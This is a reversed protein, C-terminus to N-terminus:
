VPIHVSILGRLSSDKGCPFGRLNQMEAQLIYELCQATIENQAM